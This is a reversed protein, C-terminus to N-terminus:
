PTNTEQALDAGLALQMDAAAQYAENLAETFDADAEFLRRQENLVDSLSVAGLEYAERVTALNERSKARIDSEYMAIVKRAGQYRLIARQVDSRVRAEISVRRLRAQEVAGTAEAIVGQNRNVFPLTISVGGGLLREGGASGTGAQSTSTYRGYLGLEPRAGVRANTLTAAAVAEEARASRVDPRQEIAHAILAASDGSPAGKLMFDSRLLLEVDDALGILSRLEVLHRLTETRLLVQRAELRRIEVGLISLDLPAADHVKVREALLTALQRDIEIIQEVTDLSRSARLSEAHASLITGAIQRETERVEAEARRLDAEALAVAARRRGLLPPTIGFTAETEQQAGSGVVRSVDLIPNPYLRAQQLRARALRVNVRAAALERNDRMGRRLLDDPTLGSSTTFVTRATGDEATATRNTLLILLTLVIANRM